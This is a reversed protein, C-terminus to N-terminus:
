VINQNRYRLPSVACQRKFARVFSSAESYGLRLAIETVSARTKILAEKALKLVIQERLLQYTLNYKKLRRHLTRTTINLQQCLEKIHYNEDGLRSTILLRVQQVFDNKDEVETLLDDAQQYLLKLLQPDSDNISMPLWHEDFVISSHPQNFFVQTGLISEYDKLKGVQAHAFNVRKVATEKQVGKQLLGPIGLVLAGITFEVDHRVSEDFTHLVQYRLECRADQTKLSFYMGKMFISQYRVMAHCLDGLTASHRGLEGLLGFDGSTIHTAIKLGTHSDDLTQASWAMLKLYDEIPLFRTNGQVHSGLYHELVQPPLGMAILGKYLWEVQLGWKNM